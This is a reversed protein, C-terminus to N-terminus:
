PRLTIIESTQMTVAEYFAGDLAYNITIGDLKSRVNKYQRIFTDILAYEAETIEQGFLDLEIKFHYPEGDYEFWEKITMGYGLSDLASQMAAPTGKYRHLQIAKRVLSERVSRPLVHSYGEIHRDYALQALVDDTQESLTAIINILKAREYIKRLDESIIDAIIAIVPDDRLPAPLLSLLNLESLNTM